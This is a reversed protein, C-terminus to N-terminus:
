ASKVCFEMCVVELNKDFIEKSMALAKEHYERAKEYEGFSQYVTGINGYCYAEM